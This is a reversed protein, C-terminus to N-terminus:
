EQKLIEHEWYDAALNPLDTHHEADEWSNDEFTLRMVPKYESNGDQDVLEIEWTINITKIDRDKLRQLIEGTEMTLEYKTKDSVMERQLTINYHGEAESFNKIKGSKELIEEVTMNSYDEEGGCGILGISLVLIMLLLLIRKRM